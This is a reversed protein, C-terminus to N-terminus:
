NTLHFSQRPVADLWASRGGTAYALYRCSQRFLGPAGNDHARRRLCVGKSQIICRFQLRALDRVAVPLRLRKEGRQALVRDGRGEHQVAGDVALGEKGIDLLDQDGRELGAVDDDHVIKAGVLVPCDTGGDAGGSCPEHKQRGIAGIQVRDFLDERLEFREESFGLFAGDFGYPFSDSESSM